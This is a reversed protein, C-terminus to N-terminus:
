AKPGAQWVRRVRAASRRWQGQCPGRCTKVSGWSTKPTGPDDSGRNTSAQECARGPQDEAPEAIPDSVPARTLRQSATLQPCQGSNM